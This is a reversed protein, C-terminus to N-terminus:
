SHLEEQITLNTTQPFETTIQLGEKIQEKRKL